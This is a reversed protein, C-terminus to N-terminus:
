PYDPRVDSVDEMTIQPPNNAADHLMESVIGAVMPPLVPILAQLMDIYVGEGDGDGVGAAITRLQNVYELTIM